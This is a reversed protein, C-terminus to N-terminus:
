QQLRLELEARDPPISHSAATPWVLEPHERPSPPPVELVAVFESTLASLDVGFYYLTRKLSYTENLM